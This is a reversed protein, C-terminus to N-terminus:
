PAATLPVPALGLIVAVGYIEDWQPPRMRSGMLRLRGAKRESDTNTTGDLLARWTASDAALTMTNEGSRGAPGTSHRAERAVGSMITWNLIQHGGGPVQVITQLTRGELFDWHERIWRVEAASRSEVKERIASLLESSESSDQRSPSDARAKGPGVDRRPDVRIPTNNWRADVLRYGLRDLVENIDTRLQPPLLEAPVQIGRGLSDTNIKDTFWIKKDGPNDGLHPVQFCSKTIDAVPRAGLFSFIASATPEPATVLDEYRVRHCRLPHKEEFELMSRVHALWYAGGAAVSNGPYQSAFSDTEFGIRQQFGWPRTEVASMIMDMCHRYLCIFSAEPYVQALLEADWCSDPSKDCWRTKGTSKLYPEFASQVSERIAALIHQPIAPESARRAAASLQAIELVSWTNALYKCALAVNTEPPCALEPHSDLIFRLLTSGSRAPSLVFVPPEIVQKQGNIQM